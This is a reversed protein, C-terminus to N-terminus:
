NEPCKEISRDIDYQLSRYLSVIVSDKRPYSVIEETECQRVKVNLETALSATKHFVPFEVIVAAISVVFLM